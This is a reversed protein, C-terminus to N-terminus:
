DRDSRWILPILLLALGVGAMVGPTYTNPFDGYASHYAAMRVLVAVGIGFLVGGVLMVLTLGWRVGM